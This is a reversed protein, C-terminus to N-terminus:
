KITHIDEQKSLILLKKILPKRKPPILRQHFTKEKNNYNLTKKIM